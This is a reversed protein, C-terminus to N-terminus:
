KSLGMQIMCQLNGDEIDADNCRVVAVNSGDKKTFNHFGSWYGSWTYGDINLSQYYQKNNKM